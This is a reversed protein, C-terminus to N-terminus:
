KQFFSVRTHISNKTNFINKPLGDNIKASSWLENLMTEYNPTYRLINQQLCYSTWLCRIQEMGPMGLFLTTKEAFKLMFEYDEDEISEGEVPIKTFRYLSQLLPQRKIFEEADKKSPCVCVQQPPEFSYKSGYEILYMSRM